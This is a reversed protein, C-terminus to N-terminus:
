GLTRSACDERVQAGVQRAPRPAPVGHVGRMREGGATGHAAPRPAPGARARNGPRGSCLM